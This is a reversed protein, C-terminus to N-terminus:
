SKRTGERSCWTLANRALDTELDFLQEMNGDPWYSYKIRKRVLASSSTGLIRSNTNMFIEQRWTNDNNGTSQATYLEAMDRCQMTVPPQLNAAGLITPALDHTHTHTHTNNTIRGLVDLRGLAFISNCREMITKTPVLGIIMDVALIHCSM